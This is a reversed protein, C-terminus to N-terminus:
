DDGIRLLSGLGLRRLALALGGVILILTAVVIAELRAITAIPIIV